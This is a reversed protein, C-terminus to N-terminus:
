LFNNIIDKLKNLAIPKVIGDGIKNLLIFNMSDGTKKKDMLLTEWVDASWSDGAPLVVPLNYKKLLNIVRASQEPSFGNIEESIKCAAAMGISVANGHPLRYINEIAHGLTHGFNLLKRDGTEFEDKSVVNYKIDVNRKILSAINETSHYFSDLSNNELFNFLEEDKICAHKIIEAFGNQWEAQPLTKLFSYDYLLFEPHRITGVLNKYRGVDVGNKGGICADVMALISTPVLACKIGRMYVSAAYGAMDTIVGGGVGTIVTERDVQLKILENIIFDVTSQQKHEEGPKLIITKWNTFKDAHLAVVNEDTILVAKDKEALKEIYSFDTDFFCDVTKGSFRYQEKHM